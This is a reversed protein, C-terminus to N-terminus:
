VAGYRGHRTRAQRATKASGIALQTWLAVSLRESLNGHCSGGRVITGIANQVRPRGRLAAPAIM